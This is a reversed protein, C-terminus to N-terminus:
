ATAKADRAAIRDCVWSDVESAVWASRFPGTKVHAPFTGLAIRRYIESRSLATRAKVEPLRILVYALAVLTAPITNNPM